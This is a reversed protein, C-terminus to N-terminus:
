YKANQEFITDDDVILRLPIETQDKSGNSIYFNGEVNSECGFLLILISLILTNKM